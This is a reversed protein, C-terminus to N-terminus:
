GTRWPRDGAPALAPRSPPQRRGAPPTPSVRGGEAPPAAVLDAYRIPPTTVARELLRHFRAGHAESGSARFGAEDLYAQLHGAEVAGQLPGRLWCGAAAAVRAPEAGAPTAGVRLGAGAAGAALAPRGAPVRVEADPHVAAPLAARVTRARGDPVVLLRVAGRARDPREVAVLVV